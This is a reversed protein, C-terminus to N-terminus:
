PKLDRHVIKLETLFLVVTVMQMFFGVIQDLNRNQPRNEQLWKQLDGEEVIQMVLYIINEITDHFTDYYKIINPHEPLNKLM